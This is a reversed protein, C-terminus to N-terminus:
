ASVTQNFTIIRCLGSVLRSILDVGKHLVSALLDILGNLTCNVTDVAIGLIDGVLGFAKAIASKAVQKPPEGTKYAKRNVDKVFTDSKLYDIISKLKGQAEADPDETLPEDSFQNLFEDAKVEVTPTPQGETVPTVTVNICDAGNIKIKEEM